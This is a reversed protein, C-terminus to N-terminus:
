KESRYAITSNHLGNTAFPFRDKATNVGSRLVQIIGTAYVCSLFGVWLTGFLFIFTLRFKANRSMQLKPICPNPLALIAIDVDTIAFWLYLVAEVSFSILGWLTVLVILITTSGWLPASFVFAYM